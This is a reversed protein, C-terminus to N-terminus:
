GEKTIINQHSPKTPVTLEGADVQDLAKELLYAVLSSPWVRLWAATSNLRDVTLIPLSYTRSIVKERPEDM